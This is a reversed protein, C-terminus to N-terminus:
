FIYIPVSGGQTYKSMEVLEIVVPEIVAQPVGPTILTVLIVNKNRSQKTTGGRLSTSSTGDNRPVFCDLYFYLSM